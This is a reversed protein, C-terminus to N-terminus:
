GLLGRPLQTIVLVFYWCSWKFVKSFWHLKCPFLFSHCIPVKHASWYIVKKSHGEQYAASFSLAWLFGLRVMPIWRMFGINPFLHLNTREYYKFIQWFTEYKKCVQSRLSCLKSNSKAWFFSLQSCLCVASMIVFIYVFLQTKLSLSVKKTLIWVLHDCSKKSYKQPTPLKSICTANKSNKNPVSGTHIVMRPNNTVHLHKEQELEVGKIRALATASTALSIFSGSDM